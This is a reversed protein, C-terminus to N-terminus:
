SNTCVPALRLGRARLPWDAERELGSNAGMLADKTRAPRAEPMVRTAWCMWFSNRQRWAEFFATAESPLLHGVV